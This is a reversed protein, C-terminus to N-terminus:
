EQEKYQIPRWGLDSLDKKIEDKIEGEFASRLHNGNPVDELIGSCYYNLYNEKLGHKNRLNAVLSGAARWSIGWFDDKLISLIDKHVWQVNCLAAYLNQAYVDNKIKNMILISNDLDTRLDHEFNNM